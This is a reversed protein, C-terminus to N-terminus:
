ETVSDWATEAVDEAERIHRPEVMHGQLYYHCAMGLLFGFCFVLMLTLIAGTM